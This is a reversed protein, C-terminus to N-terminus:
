YIYSLTFFPVTCLGTSMLFWKIALQLHPFPFVQDAKTIKKAGIFEQDQLLKEIRLTM